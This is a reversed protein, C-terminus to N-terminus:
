FHMTWTERTAFGLKEFFPLVDETAHLYATHAGSARGDNLM